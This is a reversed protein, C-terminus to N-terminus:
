FWVLIQHFRTSRSTFIVSVLDNLSVLSFAQLLSPLSPLVARARLLLASSPVCLVSSDQRPLREPWLSNYLCLAAIVQVSCVLVEWESMVCGHGAAASPSLLQGTHLMRRTKGKGRGACSNMQIEGMQGAEGTNTCEQKGHNEGVELARLPQARDWLSLPEKRKQLGWNFTERAPM